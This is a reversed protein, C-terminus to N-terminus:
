VRYSTMWLLNKTTLSFLTCNINMKYCNYNRTTIYKYLYDYKEIEKTNKFLTEDLYIHIYYDREAGCMPGAPGHCMYQITHLADDKALSIIDPSAIIDGNKIYLDYLSEDDLTFITHNLNLFAKKYSVKTPTLLSKNLYPNTKTKIRLRWFPEDNSVSNYYTNVQFVTFLDKDCLMLLIHYDIDKCEILSGM